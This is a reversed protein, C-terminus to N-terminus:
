ALLWYILTDHLGALLLVVAAVPRLRTSVWRARALYTAQTVSRASLLGALGLLPLTTGLAFAAPYLAGLPSRLALPITLGFFLLFLTPCFTFAFAMGLLFAGGTGMGARTALWGTLRDGLSFRLPVWGLLVLGLLIMLPGVLRRAAVLVPIAERALQQGVLLTAAGLLTYILAKGLTYAVANGVVTQRVGTGRAVYALAGAGTTLQCPSVAGILGFLLASVLPVGTREDLADIPGTLGASLRSLLTYWEVVLNQM